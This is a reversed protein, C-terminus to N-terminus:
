AGPWITVAVNFLDKGRNAIDNEDWSDRRMLMRNLHLNSEEFFKERKEAFGRNQLGRNVGYHALTLNGITVKLAERSAIQKERESQPENLLTKMHLGIADQATATSGDKLQWYEYWSTPLIHDIDLSSQDGVFPEETRKTRLNTELSTFLARMQTADLRGPYMNAGLWAAKFEDDNPWRSIDGQHAALANRLSIPSVSNSALAKLHQVFLKNYGKPTLGCIARRVLYSVLYNYMTEQDHESCKSAAIALALPYTTGAEWSAVSKGFRGVATTGDGAVLAQYSVAHADLISLQEASSLPHKPNLALRRYDAYLRGIDVDDRLTAQLAAQVFWELRPKTLRGRRQGIGWFPAEFQKWKTEYLEGADDGERDARLFIFNRILDTAHLEAGRGNLTEFIVQADDEDDLSISVVRLDRLIATALAELRAAVEKGGDAGTWATAKEQFYWIAWLSPPHNIGVVRLTEAQTFSAAFSGRLESHTKAGMASKYAERDSFTPWVKYREIDPNQMTEPNPNKVCDDIVSQLTDVRHLRILLSLAALVYQLTTLRQQGDIIHYVEVGLLAQRKQPELVIAGLFHPTPTIGAIREDSKEQIDAWLGEWQDDRNWVYQRQYFPVRYQRRDQFLQQVSVTESKVRREEDDIQCVSSATPGASM